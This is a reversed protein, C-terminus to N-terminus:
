TVIFGTRLRKNELTKMIHNLAYIELRQQHKQEMQRERFLIKEHQLNVLKNATKKKEKKKVEDLRQRMIRQAKIDTLSPVYHFQQLHEPTPTAPPASPMLIGGDKMYQSQKESLFVTTVKKLGAKTESATTYKKSYEQSEMGYPGQTSARQKNGMFLCTSSNDTSAKRDYMVPLNKFQKPACWLSKPYVSFDSTAPRRLAPVKQYIKLAKCNASLMQVSAKGSLSKGPM